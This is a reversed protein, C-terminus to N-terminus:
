YIKTVVGSLWALIEMSAKDQSTMELDGTEGLLVPIYVSRSADYKYAFFSTTGRDAGGNIPKLFIGSVITSIRAINEKMEADSVTKESLTTNAINEEMQAVSLETKENATNWKAPKDYLRIKGDKDILIGKFQKGWAFNTYSVEFYVNQGTTVSGSDDSCAVVSLALTLALLSVITKM